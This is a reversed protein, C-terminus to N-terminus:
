WKVESGAALWRNAYRVKDGDIQINQFKVALERDLDTAKAEVFEQNSFRFATEKVVAFAEPLLEKLVVEIQADRDKRLEDLKKYHDDKLQLDEETEANERLVAMESDISSLHEAIRQRFETTKHRLEDNSLGKLKEYEANIQAVIPQMEKYDRDSKSGFVSKVLNDLFGM